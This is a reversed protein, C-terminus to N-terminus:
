TREAARTPSDSRPTLRLRKSCIRRARCSRFIQNQSSRCSSYGSLFPEGESLQGPSLNRRKCTHFSLHCVKRLFKLLLHGTRRSEELFIQGQAIALYSRNRSEAQTRQRLGGNAYRRTSFTDSNSM